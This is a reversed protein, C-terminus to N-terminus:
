KLIQLKPNKFVKKCISKMYDVTINFDFNLEKFIIEGNENLLEYINIRNSLVISREIELSIKLRYRNILATVEAETIYKDLELSKEICQNIIEIAKDINEKSTGLYIKFLKVGKEWKVISGVDYAIGAKTRIKDFLLSSVGEGFWLNILKLIIVEEFSLNSIDYAVQIKAVEGNIYFQEEDNTSNYYLRNDEKEQLSDEHEEENKLQIGHFGQVRMNAFNKEIIDNVKNYDISTVVSIVCNSAVYKHKYFRVLEELTINKISEETGIIMEKIRRNKFNNFLLLDECYQDLDEKWEKHEQLIVEIEEKFGENQFSPNLIIDSYLEFGNEFDENATTGYYVVYPYNTMANNFGFTKDLLKNIEEEDRTKTGKFLMHELAHAVGINYGEEENAGAELGITFSTHAGERYKYVFRVGNSLVKKKM